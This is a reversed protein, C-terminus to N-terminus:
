SALNEGGTKNGKSYDAESISIRELGGIAGNGSKGYM